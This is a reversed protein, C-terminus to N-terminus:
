DASRAVIGGRDRRDALRRTECADLARRGSDLDRERATRTVGILNLVCRSQLVAGRGPFLHSRCRGIRGAVTFKCVSIRTRALAIVPRDADSLALASQEFVLEDM